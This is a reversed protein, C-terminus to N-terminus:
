LHEGKKVWDEILERLRDQWGSIAKVKNAVDEPLRLDIRGTLPRDTQMRYQNNKQFPMKQEV